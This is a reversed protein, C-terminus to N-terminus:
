FIYKVGLLDCKTVPLVLCTNNKRTTTEYTYHYSTLCIRTSPLKSLRWPLVMAFLLSFNSVANGKQKTILSHIRARSFPLHVCSVQYYPPLKTIHLVSVHIYMCLTFGKNLVGRYVSVNPQGLCGTQAPCRVLLSM